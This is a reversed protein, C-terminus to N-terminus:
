YLNTWLTNGGYKRLTIKNIYPVVDLIKGYTRITAKVRISNNIPKCVYYDDVPEYSVSYKGDYQRKADELSIDTVIGDKKIQTIGSSQLDYDITFRLDTEPFIKENDVYQSNVPMVPREVDGDLISFEVTSYNGATYSVDLQVYEDEKLAGIDIYDSIFYGDDYTEARKIDLTDIGVIYMYRTKTVTKGKCTRYVTKYTKNTVSNTVTRSILADLEIKSDSNFSKSYELNYLESWINDTLLEADLEYTVIDYSSCKINFKINTVMRSYPLKSSAYDGIYEKIGNLYVLELEEVKCNVPKIDIENVERVYPLNVTLTQQIGDTVPLEEIFIARYKDTFKSKLSLEEINSAYPKQEGRCLISNYEYTESIRDALVLKDNSLACSNVKYNKNRDPISIKNEIFPVIYEIYGMNKSTNSIDEISKISANIRNTYENIKSMLFAETYEITDELYRTKEYLTNLNAEISQLSSNFAESNLIRNQYKINLDIPQELQNIAYDFDITDKLM